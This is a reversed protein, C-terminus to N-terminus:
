LPRNEPNQSLISRRIIKYILLLVETAGANKLKKKRLYDAGLYFFGSNIDNNHM